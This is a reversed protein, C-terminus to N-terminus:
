LFEEMPIEPNDEPNINKAIMEWGKTKGNKMIMQYSIGYQECAKIIGKIRVVDGNPKKVLHLKPVPGNHKSKKEKKDELLLEHQNEPTIQTAIKEISESPELVVSPAEPAVEQVEAVPDPFSPTYAEMFLHSAYENTYYFFMNDNERMDETSHLTSLVFDKPGNRRIIEWFEGIAGKHALDFLSRTAKDVNDTRGIYSKHNYKNTLKYVYFM